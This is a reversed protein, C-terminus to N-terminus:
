EFFSPVRSIPIFGRKKSINQRILGFDLDLMQAWDLLFAINSTRSAIVTATKLDTHESYIDKPMSYANYLCFFHLKLESSKGLSNTPIKGM